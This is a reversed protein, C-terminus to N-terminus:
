VVVVSGWGHSVMLVVADSCRLNVVFVKSQRGRSYEVM